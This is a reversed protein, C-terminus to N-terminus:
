LDGCLTVWRCGVRSEAVEEPVSVVRIDETVANIFWRKPRGRKIRSPPNM